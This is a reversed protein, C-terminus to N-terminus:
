NLGTAYQPASVLMIPKGWYVGDEPRQEVVVGTLDSEVLGGPLGVLFGIAQEGLGDGLFDLIAVQNPHM